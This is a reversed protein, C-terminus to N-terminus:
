LKISQFMKDYDTKRTKMNGEVTGFTVVYLNDGKVLMYGMLDVGVTNSDTKIDMAGWYNLAKGNPSDVVKYEGKKKFPMQKMIEKGVEGFMAPTLGPAERKIITMNDIYGDEGLDDADLMRLIQNLDQQQGMAQALKPNNKRVEELSKKYEPDSADVVIWSPPAKMTVSGEKSKTTVWDTQSIVATAVSLLSLGAIIRLTISKM